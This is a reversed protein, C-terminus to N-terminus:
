ERFLLVVFLFLSIRLIIDKLNCYHGHSKNIGATIHDERSSQLHYEKPPLHSMATECVCGHGVECPGAQSNFSCWSRVTPRVCICNSPCINIFSGLIAHYEPNKDQFIYFCFPHWQLNYLYSSYEPLNHILYPDNDLFKCLFTLILSM